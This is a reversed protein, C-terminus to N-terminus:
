FVYAFKLFFTNGQESAEGFAATGRQFAFQITGFHPKNRYVFVSQINKRNIVSSTQFFVKVFLDRTFNHVGRVVHIFTADNEPDPNLWLRSLEYELSLKPTIKHRWRGSLLRLDSDFIRGFEYELSVSQWERRSSNERHGSSPEASRGEAGRM